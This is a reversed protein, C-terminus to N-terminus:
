IHILCSDANNLMKQFDFVTQFRKESRERGGVAVSWPAPPRQGAPERQRRGRRRRSRCRRTGRSRVCVGLSGTSHTLAGCSRARHWPPVAAYLAAAFRRRHQPLSKALARTLVLLEGRDNPYQEHRVPCRRGKEGSKTYFSTWSWYGFNNM